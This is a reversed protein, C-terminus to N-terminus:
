KKSNLSVLGNNIYNERSMAWVNNDIAWKLDEIITRVGPYRRGKYEFGEYADKLDEYSMTYILPNFYNTSDCVIFRPPLTKYGFYEGKPDTTLSSVAKYYVYGQLYAQRYLYYDSYFGEVSWTCKLDDVKITRSQHDITVLDM